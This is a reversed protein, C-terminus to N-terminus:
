PAILDRNVHFPIMPEMRRQIPAQWLHKRRFRTSGCCWGVVDVRLGFSGHIPYGNINNGWEFLCRRPVRVNKGNVVGKRM